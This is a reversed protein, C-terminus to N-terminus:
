GHSMLAEINDPVILNWDKVLKGRGKKAAFYYTKKGVRSRMKELFDESVHWRDRVEELSLFFGARYFLSKRGIKELYQYIKNTNISPFSTLSKYAEEFGGALDTRQLCDLVTRERDSVHVLRDSWIVKEVGLLNTNEKVWLCEVGGYILPRFQRPSSIYVTNFIAANSVGHIELASHHSFYYPETLKRGLLFKDFSQPPQQERGLYQVSIIQYLGRKVSRIYGEKALRYIKVKTLHRDGGVIKLADEFTFFSEGMLKQYLKPLTM